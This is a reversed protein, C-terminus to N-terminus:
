NGTFIVCMFKLKGPKIRKKGEKKEEHKGKIVKIKNFYNTKFFKSENNKKISIIITKPCFLWIEISYYQLL